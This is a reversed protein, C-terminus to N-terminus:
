GHPFELRQALALGEDLETYAFDPFAKKCASIDFPRYGNHPIPVTRPNGSIKVSKGSLAVVKEAITRFDITKGTAVNLDGVSRLLLVRAVVEAVDAVLVHDRRDEGEGFLVIPEGNNAKRRFQNPGYGNHPDGAGYILTPRLIALPVKVENRFMLERALHMVGHYSGPARFSSETLPVPADAFVADSSINVVHAPVVKALARVLAISLVINDRLLDPTRAPAIASVAVVSDDKKLRAALSETADPALLDVENRTLRLVPMGAKELRSAIANGVFGGAGIVVVRSPNVSNPFLHELM